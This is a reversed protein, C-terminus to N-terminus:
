HDAGTDQADLVVHDSFPAEENARSGLRFDRTGDRPVSALMRSQFDREDLSRGPM